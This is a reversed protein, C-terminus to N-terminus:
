DDDEGRTLDLHGDYETDGLNADIETGDDGESERKIQQLDREILQEFQERDTLYQELYSSLQDAALHTSM